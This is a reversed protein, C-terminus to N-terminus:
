RNKRKMYRTIYTNMHAEYSQEKPEKVETFDITSYFDNCLYNEIDQLRATCGPQSILEYALLFPMDVKTHDYHTKENSGQAMYDLMLHCKCSIDDLLAKWPSKPHALLQARCIAYTICDICPIKLKSM